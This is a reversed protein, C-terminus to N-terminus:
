KVLLMQKTQTFDGATMRYFYVGSPMNAANWSVSYTGAPREANVLLAAERGLLDYVVLKVSGAVRLQYSIVTVPNFPNPYNQKLATSSPVLNSGETVGNVKQYEFAGLDVVGDSPVPNGLYDKDPRGSIALGANIAPSTSMLAFGAVSNLGTTFGSAISVFQPDATIKHVDEPQNAPVFGYYLNYDIYRTYGSTRFDYSQATTSMNYIINNYFYYTRTGANMNRESIIRPSTSAGCYVTNNYCYVSTNPYSICFIVGQDNKSVNYRCVVNSDAQETCTWFLGHSNEHSYSYQWITNPSRLDADYMSGDGFNGLRLSAQNLYGENYQCITGTCGTTFITNGVTGTATNYCLNHEVVGGDFLRLIMANKSIHHIINNSIRVHTYRRATWATSRPYDNRVAGDTFLGENDCYAIQCGDILIDDFRTPTADAVVNFGIGGTAKPPDDDGILGKVHHINLNKLYWHNVLGYNSAAIYVGRRDGGTAADNTIELNNVEWYQQNYFYLTGFGTIGNGNIVPMAGDGYKDIVIPASSDGSGKPYLMGTWTCGSRLLLSDGPQFVTSNVKSLTKWATASTLGNAGDDGALSDLYFTRHTLVQFSASTVQWSGSSATLTVSSGMTTFLLSNFSAAGYSPVVVVPSGSLDAGAATMSVSATYDFDPNNNSDAAAVVVAPKIPYGITTSAPQQLFTLKTASVQIINKASDSMVPAFTSMQSSTSDSETLISQQSLAFQFAQHDTLGSNKLSMRLTLTKSGNDAVTDSIGSFIMSQANVTGSALRTPGDFLDVALISGLWYMVSNAPGQGFTMQTVITPKADSDGAEGGDRVMVQWVQAGSTSSLPSADNLLSSIQATESSAVAVVDSNMSALPVLTTQSGVLPDITLYNNNSGLGNYAFVAYYYQTGFNLNSQPFSTGAGVYVVDADGIVDGVVYETGDIPIGTPALGEKRLVLYGSVTPVAATFSVTMSTITVQSFSLNTPQTTPEVAPQLIPQFSVSFDDAALGCSSTGKKAWRFWIEQGNAVTDPITGQRLTRNDPANGDLAGITSTKLPSFDLSTDPTWIGGTISVANVQYEFVLKNTGTNQKWQEGWYSVSFARIPNGTTNVFRVAFAYLITDITSSKEGLARDSSPNTGSTDDLTGYSRLGWYDVTANGDDIIYNPPSGPTYSASKRGHYAYWGPITTNDTWPVLRDVPGVGSLTDFSQYYVTDTTLSVQARLLGQSMAALCLGLIIKKM